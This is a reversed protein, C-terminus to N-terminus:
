PLIIVSGFQQFHRDFSVARDIGSKECIYKSSCDTFSWGKDSFQKFVKWTEKIGTESLYHVSVDETEFFLGGLELAKRHEGRSRLLTLTEDIVYDTILLQETNHGFWSKAAFHDADDEVVSAFWAGSDVFIM